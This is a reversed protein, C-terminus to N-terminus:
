SRRHAHILFDALADLMEDDIDGSIGVGFRVSQDDTDWLVRRHLTKLMGAVQERVSATSEGVQVASEFNPDQLPLEPSRHVSIGQALWRASQNLLALRLLEDGSMAGRVSSPLANLQHAVADAHEAAFARVASVFSSSFMEPPIDEATM